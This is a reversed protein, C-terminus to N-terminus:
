GELRVTEVSSIPPLYDALLRWSAGEDASGFLQGTSTGVYVGAPDRDDVAMAERLVGLFAAEQPLGDRHPEWTTGEDRSRWV